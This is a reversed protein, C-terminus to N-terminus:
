PQRARTGFRALKWGLAFSPKASCLDALGVDYKGRKVELGATANGDSDRWESTNDQAGRFLSQMMWQVRGRKAVGAIAGVSLEM